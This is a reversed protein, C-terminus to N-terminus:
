DITSAFCVPADEELKMANEEGAGISALFANRTVGSTYLTAM